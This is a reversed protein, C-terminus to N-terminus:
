ASGAALLKEEFESPPLYGLSSHLRDENYVEGIFYDIRQRAEQITRYEFLYVEEYKLTKIFSEAKANDYPNGKRAMSIAIGYTTLLDTYEKSGYQVGRDSHHILGPQLSRNELARKLATLPLSTDLHECLEWGICKRSFADLIVALYVFEDRLRIYTIDAVWLQNISSIIMNPILNPYTQTGPFTTKVWGRKRLCLLNDERM